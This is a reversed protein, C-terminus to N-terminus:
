KVFTKSLSFGWPFKNKGSVAWGGKTLLLTQFLGCKFFSDKSVM